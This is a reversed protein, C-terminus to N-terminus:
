TQQLSPGLLDLRPGALLEAVYPNGQALRDRWDDPRFFAFEIRDPELALAAAVRGLAGDLDELPIEGVLVLRIPDADHRPPVDGSLFATELGPVDAVAARLAVEPGPATAVLATLPVLIPCAPDPSYLRANGERQSALVGIRELKYCEHQLSSIPLGLAHSLDTLSFGRHPQPLLHRLVAARVRSSFLQALLDADGDRM